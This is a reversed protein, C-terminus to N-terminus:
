VRRRPLIKESRNCGCWVYSSSRQIVRDTPHARSFQPLSGYRIHTLCTPTAFDFQLSKGRNHTEEEELVTAVLSVNAQDLVPALASSFSLDGDGCVLWKTSRPRSASDVDNLASCEGTSLSRHVISEFLHLTCRGKLQYGVFAFASLLQPISIM